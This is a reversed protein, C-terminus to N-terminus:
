STSQTPAHGIPVHLPRAVPIETLLKRGVPLRVVNYRVACYRQVHEADARTTFVRAQHPDRVYTGCLKHPDIALYEGTGPLQLAFRETM